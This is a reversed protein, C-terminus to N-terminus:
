WELFDVGVPGEGLGEYAAASSYHWQRADAVLGKRVPNHHIYEAKQLLMEDSGIAKPHFEEQWVKFRSRSDGKAAQEFCWVLLRNGESQALGYLERSTFKKLDRMMDSLDDNTATVIAHWHTPMMVYAHILLGRNSRVHELSGTIVSFYPGGVFVPLWRVISCTIFHPYPGGTIVKYRNAM